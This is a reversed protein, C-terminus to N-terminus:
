VTIDKTIAEIQSAMSKLQLSIENARETHHKRETVLEAMKTKIEDFTMGSIDDSPPKPEIDLAKLLRDADVQKLAKDYANILEEQKAIVQQLYDIEGFM